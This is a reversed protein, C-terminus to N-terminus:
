APNLLGGIRLHAIIREDVMQSITDHMQRGFQRAVQQSTEPTAGPPMQINFHYENNITHGGTRGSFQVPIANGNPLPVYAESAAGEGFLALQPSTAIGGSAYRRLPLRGRPTMIGGAAFGEPGGGAAAAGGFLGGFLAGGGFLGGGFLGELGTALPKLVLMKIIMQEISQDISLAMKRWADSARAPRDVLIDDITKGLDNLTSTGIKDLSDNLTDGQGMQALGHFSSNKVQEQKYTQEAQERLRAEAQAMEADTQIYGNARDQQLKILGSLYIEEQSAIGLRERAATAAETLSDKFAQLARAYISTSANHDKLAVDLELVKLRLQEAPTAASGLVGMWRRTDALIAAIPVASAKAAAGVKNVAAIAANAREPGFDFGQMDPTSKAGSTMQERLRRWGAAIITERDIEDATAADGTESASAKALVRVFWQGWTEDKTADHMEKAHEAISLMVRDLANARELVDEAFMSASIDKAQQELQANEARLTALRKLLGDDLARGANQYAAALANVGGARSVSAALNGEEGPHQGFAARALANAQPANNAEQARRIANGLVDYAAAVNRAAAVQHALEPNIRYLDEYLAGTGRRAEDLNAALRQLANEVQEGTLSFKSGQEALAQVERTALGTAEAFGRIQQSRAALENAAKSMEYIVAVVGAIAAGTAVGIPGLGSLFTGFIGLSSASQEVHAKLDAVTKDIASLGAGPKASATEIKRLAAQGDAGLRELAARVTEADQVSLRISVNGTPM